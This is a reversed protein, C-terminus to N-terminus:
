LDASGVADALPGGRRRRTSTVATTRLGPAFRRAEAEWTAVVSTPAVVLVPGEALDGREEARLVTALVQLTKGLGMDDALIGGLRADWLTSLWRFGQLQYDRLTAALSGPVQATGRDADGLHRLAEVS